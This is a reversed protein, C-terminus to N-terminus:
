LPKKALSINKRAENRYPCDRRQNNPDLCILCLNDRLVIERLHPSLFITEEQTQHQLSFVTKLVTGFRNERPQPPIPGHRTRQSLKHEIPKGAELVNAFTILCLSQLPNHLPSNLGIIFGAVKVEQTM